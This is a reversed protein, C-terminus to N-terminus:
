VGLGWAGGVGAFGVGWVSEGWIGGEEGAGADEGKFDGAEVVGDTGELGRESVEGGNEGDATGSFGAELGEASERCPPEGEM